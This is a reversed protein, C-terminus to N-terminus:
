ASPRDDTLALNNVVQWLSAQAEAVGARATPSLDLELLRELTRYADMLKQESETMAKGAIDTADSV